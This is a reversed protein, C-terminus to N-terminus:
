TYPFESSLSLFLWLLCEALEGSELAAANRRLLM